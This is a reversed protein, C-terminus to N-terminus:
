SDSLRVVLSRLYPNSSISKTMFCTLSVDVDLSKEGEEACNM